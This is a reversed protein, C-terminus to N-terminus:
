FYFTRTSSCTGFGGSFGEEQVVKIGHQTSDIFDFLEQTCTLSTFYLDPTASLLVVDLLDSGGTKEAEYPDKDPDIGSIFAPLATILPPTNTIGMAIVM